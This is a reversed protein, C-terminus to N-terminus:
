NASVITMHDLRSHHSYRFLSVTLLLPHISPFINCFDGFQRESRGPSFIAGVAAEKEKTGNRETAIGNDIYM